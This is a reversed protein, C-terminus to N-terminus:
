TLYNTQKLEHCVHLWVTIGREDLFMGGGGGAIFGFHLIYSRTTYPVQVSIRSMKLGRFFLSTAMSPSDPHVGAALIFTTWKPGGVPDHLPQRPAWKELVIHRHIYSM